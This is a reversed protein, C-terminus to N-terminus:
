VSGDAAAMNIANSIAAESQVAVRGGAQQVVHALEHGLAALGNESYPDYAGPAFHIDSGTTFAQAGALTPLHSVFVKVESLDAAFKNEMEHRVHQPISTARHQIERALNQPIGPMELNGFKM